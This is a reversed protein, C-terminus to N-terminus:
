PRKQCENAFAHPLATVCVLQFGICTPTTTKLQYIQNIPSVPISGAGRITPKKTEAMLTPNIKWPM